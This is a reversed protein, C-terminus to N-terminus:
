GVSKRKIEDVIKERHKLLWVRVMSFVEAWARQGPGTPGEAPYKALDRDVQALAQKLQRITKDQLKRKAKPGPRDPLADWESRTRREKKNSLQNDKKNGCHKSWTDAGGSQCSKKFKSYGSGGGQGSMVVGGPGHRYM